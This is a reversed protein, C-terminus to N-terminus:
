VEAAEASSELEDDVGMSFRENHVGVQLLEDDVGAKLLEDDDVGAGNWVFEKEVELVNRDLEEEVGKCLLEEDVGICANSVLM